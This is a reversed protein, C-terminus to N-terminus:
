SESDGFFTRTTHKTNQITEFMSQIPQLPIGLRFMALTAPTHAIRDYCSKLDCSTM